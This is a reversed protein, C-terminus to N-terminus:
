GEFIKRNRRLAAKEIRKAMEIIRGMDEDTYEHRSLYHDLLDDDCNEPRLLDLMFQNRKM